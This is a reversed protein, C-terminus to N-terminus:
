EGEATFLLFLLRYYTSFILFSTKLLIPTYVPNANQCDTCGSFAQYVQKVCCKEKEPLVNQITTYNEHIELIEHPVSM